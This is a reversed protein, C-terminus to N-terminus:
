YNASTEISRWELQLYQVLMSMLEAQDIPKQLFADCGSEKSKAAVVDFGSASIAIIPLEVFEPMKRLDKVMSFGTKGGMFLDTLIIDPHNQSAVEIGENGNEALLVKFGMPELIDVLLLRNEETDDVVLIKPKQSLQNIIETIDNHKFERLVDTVLFTSDFWFISGKNSQSGIELEGGMLSVIEQSITLNVDVFEQEQQPRKKTAGRNVIEFRIIKQPLLDSSQPEITKIISVILTVTGETISTTGTTILNVLVQQLREADAKINSPLQGNIEYSFTIGDYNKVINQATAKIKQLFGSFHLNHPKLKLTKTELQSLHLYNDLLSLLNTGTEEVIKLGDVQNSKADQWSLENIQTINSQLNQAQELIQNLPTRLQQSINGLINEKTKNTDEVKQLAKQSKSLEGAIEELRMELQENIGQKDQVSAQFRQILQNLSKALSSIEKVGEVDIEPESNELAIAQSAQELQSISQSIRGSIYISSGVGVGLISLYMLMMLQPSVGTSKAQNNEAQQSMEISSNNSQSNSISLYGFSVAIVLLQVVFPLILVTRLPLKFINNLPSNSNM